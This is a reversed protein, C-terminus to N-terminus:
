AKKLGRIILAASLTFVMGLWASWLFIMETKEFQISIFIFFVNFPLTCLACIGIALMQKKTM